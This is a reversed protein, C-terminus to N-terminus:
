ENAKVRGKMGKEGKERVGYKSEEGPKVKAGAERM